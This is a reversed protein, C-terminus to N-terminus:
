VRVVGRKIPVVSLLANMVEDLRMSRSGKLLVVDDKEAVRKLVELVRANDKCSFVKERPMGESLAADRIIEAFAGVAILCDLGSAAIFKGAETHFRVAAPGLELMDGCVLIKRGSTKYNSLIEVSMKLSQPNSNYTDDIVDLMGAKKFCLRGDVPELGLFAKYIDEYGINYLLGVSVATLANYINHAGPLNIKFDYKDNVRFETKLNQRFIRTVKFDCEKYIGFKVIKCKPGKIKALLIDDANLLAIGNRDLQRLLESKEKLAGEKSKLFQLHAPGINTIIGFDPKLIGALRRIEGFHNTGLELVGIEHGGNLGLLTKSLGIINNETKVNKLVNFRDSLVKSIMEKATTKGNSGTIGIFPIDFKMRYFHAIDGLAEFTDKVQIINIKYKLNKFRAHGMLAVAGKEVAEGVFDHGDFNKGKLAIYLEGKKLTRTDTSIGSINNELGRTLLKGKTSKLVERISLKM